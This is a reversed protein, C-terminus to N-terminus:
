KESYKKLGIFKDLVKEFIICLGGNAMVNSSTVLPDLAMNLALIIAIMDGNFGLYYELIPLIVFIAGGIVATVAYRAFTFVLSFSVWQLLSPTIGYFQKYIFCSLFCMMICDGMQQINTTAPIIGKALDPNKLNKSTGEITLPMTSLSCGTTFATIGAPLMNKLAIFTKKLNFNQSVFYILFIYLVIVSTLYMVIYGYKSVVGSFIDSCYMNCVFGLVFLPILKSIIKTLFFEVYGKAKVIIYKPTKLLGILVGVIVGKDCTLWIPKKISIRFLSQLSSTENLMVIKQSFFSSISASCGYSYWISLFNSIFEFMLLLVIFKVANKKFSSVTYALFVCVTFPTTWVIIDKIFLAITYFLRHYYIDLRSAFILYITILIFTQIYNYKLIKKLLNM